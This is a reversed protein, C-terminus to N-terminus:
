KGDLIQLFMGFFYQVIYIFFKFQLVFRKASFRQITQHANAIFKFLLKCIVNIQM